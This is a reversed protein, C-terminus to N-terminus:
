LWVESIAHQNDYCAIGIKAITITYNIVNIKDRFKEPLNLYPQPQM